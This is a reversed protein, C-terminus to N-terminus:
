AFQTVEDISAIFTKWNKMGLRGHGDGNLTNKDITFIQYKEMSIMSTAAIGTEISDEACILFISESDKLQYALERNVYSPNTGTFTGGAMAIGISVAPLFLNNGSVLLVRGGPQLGAKQLCVAFRM